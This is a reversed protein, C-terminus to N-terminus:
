RARSQNQGVCESPLGRGESRLGSAIVADSAVVGGGGGERGGRLVRDGPAIEAATRVAVGGGGNAEDAKGWGAEVERRPNIVSRSQVVCADIRDRCGEIVLISSSSPTSTPHSDSESLSLVTMVLVNDLETDRWVLMLRRDWDIFRERETDDVFDFSSNLKERLSPLTAAM